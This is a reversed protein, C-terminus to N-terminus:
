GVIWFVGACMAVVAFAGRCAYGFSNGRRNLWGQGTRLLLAFCLMGALVGMSFIAVYLIGIAPSMFVAPILALFVASGATGHVIGILLPTRFSWRKHSAEAGGTPVAHVPEHRHWHLGGDHSHLHEKRINLLVSTGTLILIVGVSREAWYPVNQPLVWHFIFLAATILLLLGGHGIAWHVAYALARSPTKERGALTAVALVHDPDLAHLMGLPFSLALLGIVASTGM